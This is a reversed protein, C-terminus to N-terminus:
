DNSPHLSPRRIPAKSWARRGHASWAGVSVAREFGAMRNDADYVTAPNFLLRMSLVRAPFKFNVPPIHVTAVPRHKSWAGVMCASM